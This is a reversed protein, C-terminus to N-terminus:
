DKAYWFSNATLVEASLCFTLTKVTGDLTLFLITYLAVIILYTIISRIISKKEKKNERLTQTGFIYIPIILIISGIITSIIELM